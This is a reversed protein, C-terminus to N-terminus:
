QVTGTNSKFTTFIAQTYRGGFITCKILWPEIETITSVSMSIISLEVKTKIQEMVFDNLTACGRANKCNRTLIHEKWNFNDAHKFIEISEMTIRPFWRQTHDLVEAQQFLIQYENTLAHGAVASKGTQGLRYRIKRETIRTNVVSRTTTVIDFGYSCPILDSIRTSIQQDTGPGLSGSTLKDFIDLAQFVFVTNKYLFM